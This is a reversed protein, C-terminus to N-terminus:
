IEYLVMINHYIKQPCIISLFLANKKLLILCYGTALM